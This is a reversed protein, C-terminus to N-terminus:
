ILTGLKTLAPCHLGNVRRDFNLVGRVLHISIVFKIESVLGNIATCDLM